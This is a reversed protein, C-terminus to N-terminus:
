LHGSFARRSLVNLFHNMIKCQHLQLLRMPERSDLLGCAIRDQWNISFVISCQAAEMKGYQEHMEAYAFKSTRDIAVFLYLKGEETRVAVIDSHFYGIPYKKFKKKASQEGDMEPLRSIDHRQFLRHLSFRTLAPM